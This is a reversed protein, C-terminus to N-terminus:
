TAEGHLNLVKRFGFSLTVHRMLCVPGRIQDYSYLSEAKRDVRYKKKLKQGMFTYSNTRSIRSKM